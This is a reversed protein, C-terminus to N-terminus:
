EYKKNIKKILKNTDRYSFSTAIFIFIHILLIFIYIFLTFKNNWLLFATLGMINLFSMILFSNFNVTLMEKEKILIEKESNKINLKANENLFKEIDM